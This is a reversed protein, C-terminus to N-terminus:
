NNEKRKLYVVSGTIGVLAIAGIGVYTLVNDNTSPNEVIDEEPTTPDEVPTEVEGGTTTDLLDNTSLVYESYHELPISANGKDDFVVESVFELNDANLYYLNVTQNAYKAINLGVIVESAPLDGSLTTKIFTNEEAVYQLLADTTTDESVILSLDTLTDTLDEKIDEKNITITYEGYDIVLSEVTADSTADTLAASLDFEETTPDVVLGTEDETLVKHTNDYYNLEVLYDTDIVETRNAENEANSSNNVVKMASNGLLKFTINGTDAQTTTTGTKPSDTGIVLDRVNEEFTNNEIIVDCMSTLHEKNKIKVKIGGGTTNGETEIVNRFTSNTIEIKEIAYDTSVSNGINLDIGAASRKVLDAETGSGEGIEDTGSGDFTSNNIIISKFQEAYVGAKTYNLITVNDLILTAGNSRIDIAIDETEPSSDVDITVNSIEINIDNKIQNFKGTLTYGNGDIIIDQTYDINLDAIITNEELTYEKASVVGVCAFCAILVGLLKFTRKM